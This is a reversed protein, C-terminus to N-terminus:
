RGAGGPRSYVDRYPRAVVRFGNRMFFGRVTNEADHRAREGVPLAAAWAVLRKLYANKTEASGRANAVLTDPDVGVEACYAALLALREARDDRPRLGPAPAHDLWQRVSACALLAAPDSPDTTM